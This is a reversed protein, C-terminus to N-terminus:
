RGMIAQFFVESRGVFAGNDDPKLAVDALKFQGTHFAIGGVM